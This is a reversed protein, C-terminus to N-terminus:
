LGLPQIDVQGRPSEVHKRHGTPGLLGEVVRLQVLNALHRLNGCESEVALRRPRPGRLAYDGVACRQALHM